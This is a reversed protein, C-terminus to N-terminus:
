VWPTLIAALTRVLQAMKGGWISIKLFISLVEGNKKRVYTGSWM